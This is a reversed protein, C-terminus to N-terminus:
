DQQRASQLIGESCITVLSGCGETVQSIQPILHAPYGLALGSSFSGINAALTPLLQYSINTAYHSSVTGPTVSLTKDEKRASENDRLEKNSINVKKKRM